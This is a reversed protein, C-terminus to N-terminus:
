KSPKHTGKLAKYREPYNAVWDTKAQNYAKIDATEDGSLIILPFTPDMILTKMVHPSSYLFKLKAKWAYNPDLAHTEIESKLALVDSKNLLDWQQSCNSCDEDISVSSLKALKEKESVENAKQPTQKEAKRVYRM